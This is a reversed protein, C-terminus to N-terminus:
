AGMLMFTSSFISGDIDPKDVLDNWSPASSEASLWATGNWQYSVSGATFTDGITPNNPFDISAM